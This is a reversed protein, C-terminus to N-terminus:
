RKVSDQRQQEIAVLAEAAGVIRMGQYTKLNRLRKDGSVILDAGAALACALVADDEPDGLVTLKIEAPTVRIALRAYRRALREASMRSAAVRKAFKPRPLVETLEALLEASTYLTIRRARAADLLARPAGKWLFGSVVTNTDAVARLAVRPEPPM